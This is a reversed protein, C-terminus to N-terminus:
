MGHKSIGSDSSYLLNEECIRPVNKGCKCETYTLEADVHLQSISDDYVSLTVTELAGVSYTNPTFLVHRYVLSSFIIVNYISWKIIVHLEQLKRHLKNDRSQLLCHLLLWFLRSCVPFKEIGVYLYNYIVFMAVHM